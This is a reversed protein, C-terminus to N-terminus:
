PRKLYSEISVISSTLLSAAPAEKKSWTQLGGYNNLTLRSLMSKSLLELVHPHARPLTLVVLLHGQSHLTRGSSLVHKSVQYFPGAIRGLQLVGAEARPGGPGSRPAGAHAAPHPAAHAGRARAGALAAHAGVRGGEGPM